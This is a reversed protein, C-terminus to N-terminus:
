RRATVVRLYIVKNVFDGWLVKNPALQIWEVGGDLRGSLWKSAMRGVVGRDEKHDREKLSEWWFRICNEKRNWVHLM